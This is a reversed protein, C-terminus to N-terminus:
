KFKRDMIKNVSRIGRGTNRDACSENRVGNGLAEQEQVYSEESNCVVANFAKGLMELPKFSGIGM